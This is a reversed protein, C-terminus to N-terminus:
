RARYVRGAKINKLSQTFDVIFQRDMQAKKMLANYEKKTISITSPM